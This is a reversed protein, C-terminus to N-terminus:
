SRWLRGILRGLRVWRMARLAWGALDGLRGPRRLLLLLGAVPLLRAPAPLEKLWSWLQTGREGYSFLPALESAADAIDVRLEASCLRLLLQRERLRARQDALSKTV